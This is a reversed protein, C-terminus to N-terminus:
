KRGRWRGKDEGRQRIEKMKAIATNEREKNESGTTDLTGNRTKWKGRGMAKERGRKGGIGGNGREAAKGVCETENKEGSDKKDSKRM